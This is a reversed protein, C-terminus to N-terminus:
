FGSLDLPSSEVVRFANGYKVELEDADNVRVAGAPLRYKLIWTKLIGETATIPPIQQQLSKTMVYASKDGFSRVVEGYKM